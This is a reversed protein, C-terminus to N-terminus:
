QRWDSVWGILESPAAFASCAHVHQVAVQQQV